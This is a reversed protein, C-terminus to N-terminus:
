WIEKAAKKRAPDPSILDYPSLRELYQRFEPSAGKLRELTEPDLPVWCEGCDLCRHYGSEEVNKEHTCEDPM